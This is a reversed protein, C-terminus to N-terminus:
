RSNSRPTDGATDVISSPLSEKTVLLGRARETFGYKSVYEALAEELRQILEDKDLAPM